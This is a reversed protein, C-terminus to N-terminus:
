LQVQKKWISPLVMRKRFIGFLVKVISGKESNEQLLLNALTSKAIVDHKQFGLQVKQNQSQAMM